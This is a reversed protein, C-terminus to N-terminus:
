RSPLIRTGHQATDALGEQLAGPRRGDGIWSGIGQRALAGVAQLRLRIGGTVDTGAAGEFGDTTDALEEVAIEPITRGEGDFVGNTAGLWVVRRVFVGRSGMAPALALFLAETSCISVGWDRDMIVDGFVVPVLGLELAALLPEPWVQEPHGQRSQVFSSPVISYAPVGSDRLAGVVIQHLKFAQGQTRSVGFIQSPDQIGRQIGSESAAVHGFSGSGHGIVVPLASDSLVESLEAALRQIVELRPTEPRTKDTILSGGLKVLLIEHRDSPDMESFTSRMRGRVRESETM